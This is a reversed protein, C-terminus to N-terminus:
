GRMRSKPDCYKPDGKFPCYTCNRNNKGSRAQYTRDINYEGDKTFGEAILNDLEVMAKNVSFEMLPFLDKFGNRHIIM